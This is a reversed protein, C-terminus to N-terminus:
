IIASQSFKKVPTAPMLYRVRKWFRSNWAAAGHSSQLWKIPASRRILHQLGPPLHTYGQPGTDGLQILIVNMERQVLVHHLGVQWDFGGILSNQPSVPEKETIKSESKSGLTLIVMLRRSQKMRDEVLELHDEGPIDDRGHIFLRYGCKEELVSPLINTVFQCLTEETVKDMCQTRYVVYADYIKVDKDQSRVPLYPRFFLALEIAFCKVLVAAFVCFFLVCLGGTVLPVMSVRRKLTLTASAVTNFGVATCNFKTKFDKDSVKNITLIATAITNQSTKETVLTRTQNYGDTDAVNWSARCIWHDDQKIGCLASCNLKIGFGEDAFLENNIPSLIEIDRPSSKELVRLWRSGSSNYVGHNHTWTCICTYINENDKVNKLWLHNKHEGHLHTFNQFLLFLDRHNMTTSSLVSRRVIYLGSDETLLNLFFLKEGHHHIRETEDSSINTVKSGNKYWTVEGKPPQASEKFINPLFYFGEGKLLAFNKPHYDKCQPEKAVQFNHSMPHYTHEQHSQIVNRDTKHCEPLELVGLQGLIELFVLNAKATRRTMTEWSNVGALKWPWRLFEGIELLIVRPDDHTLADHLGVRQEYCLQIQNEYMPSVKDAKDNATTHKEESSLIIIILRRCQHVTAAIADHVAEGPCDDRGRIYLSYGHKRELEESLVQLAFSATEASTLNNPHLFSVFGDYLKGDHAQHKSFHILLKRYALVLDVKFFLFAVCLVVLALFASVCVAVSIQQAAMYGKSLFCVEQLWVSGTKKGLPSEVNCSIPIELFQHLVKSISLTSLGYVRGRDHFYKLSVTIGELDEAFTGDFTWHIIIEPDESVGILVLCKVEVPMGVQVVIVENIPSVVHAEIAVTDDTIALQMSRAATYKRGGVSINVLCTYKGSDRESVASLRLFGKHDVNIAQVPQCDRMWQIEKKVNLEFIETQKCPLGGNVGEPIPVTESPNPCEGPSVSVQFTIQLLGTKDRKECMYSGNHSVQVPLFWLLGDRVEVGTPLSLNHRGMRSWTVNSQTDAILCRLIFLHGASVYYTDTEGSHDMQAKIIENAPEQMQPVLSVDEALSADITESVSGMVGGLTFRLTCTYSGKDEAKVMKIMLKTLDRYIYKGDRSNMIPDCGRYWMLSYTINYSKLKTIYDKLPCNLNDNVWRTLKQLNERPSGCNGPSPLDVKLMTAQQYCQSSTRVICEYEGEDDLTVNLFWLTEGHILIRGTQNSLELGTKSVYWTINYPVAKFDFVEIELLIVRPDDHTLADHIGVRQEYCLQIQNECMPSVKDAKDNATTHKEESSLIIIILRRCQHVTAAIADHVAEGPCDDRGRIYLSYGHKRELEESLVQLAFSATEASTLNNPHLFSVFGDYLKGDHAQHKSFHILLKRYALVLDVKFFLFAVCLVVLALFASVCVAVSIQQAAMYGKSLFCVEQLWVSGTKKGLPSEVNCSIPIELFQHLVKSISLTSLGYVRGRDHFYKLSVTIGELDEAFTGDFTWHIIIEPDESVGILVLCKVEVPMGVQVVIVENIPSVVHAEIAVTDDTIALQMSRAATYKRGGVSINVLCTYKGSDRESVASLRLFGKHDVNIAQVPQCDRMWQIEKKVNLEFIETQKCPLGGNVGEPIPVTESPNPCEGPSVSVQFTIQLLGTKDRKECMYSGNHSVQVPLFWLLGDRVEVGTPLSLNHRGMRSWTVNSQTDAILCRLIFLHGASVYYTDTEGSHDHTVALGLSLAALLCGWGAMAMSSTKLSGELLARHMAAMCELHQRTDPYVEESGDFSISSGNNSSNNNKCINNNNSSTSSTHRKSTFSSATYLLLLRRSAQINDEVSDVIAQGPLCDRGAIFLKYGCANELVQPLTHLAFTEVEKSFGVTYPQPYAVYADYLKGDSDKNTYLVPFAKRFWLVIDVKYIYYVTVSIVFLVTVGALVAGIPLIINPDMQAKIIENAPEQVQPVLSYDEALSADITESVSGMVGGLTFRLTCTYSGKDEAKVMKIMLKTLDRYIYKGDRSNMIPDCGRYWMLSYTINYSKLKTIYDKLPCNLNDNVWRTLKQLAERPRGCKETSPLDVKLMTAQQYCQSSTRVICEYEGEDDLTVNLFWLTEGHILIRGTQNSLELGTKSVYWTINYPVAKFDFVEPSLLTSNLMAIDGPVSFVREFQLKYDSCNGQLYGTCIGYIGFFILLSQLASSLAM